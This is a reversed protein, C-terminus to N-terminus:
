EVSGLIQSELFVLHRGQLTAASLEQHDSDHDTGYRAEVDYVQCLHVGATQLICKISKRHGVFLCQENEMQLQKMVKLMMLKLNANCDHVWEHDVGIVGSLGQNVHAALFSDKLYLIHLIQTMEATRLRDSVVFTFEVNQQMVKFHQKLRMLKTELKAVDKDHLVSEADELLVDFLYVVCKIGVYLQEEDYLGEADSVSGSEVVDSHSKTSQNLPSMTSIPINDLSANRQKFLYTVGQENSPSHFEPSNNESDLNGLLGRKGHVDENYTPLSSLDINVDGYSQLTATRPRGTDADTSTMYGANPSMSTHRIMTGGTFTVHSLMTNTPQNYDREHQVSQASKQIKLNMNLRDRQRPSQEDDMATITDSLYGGAEKFPHEEQEACARREDEQSVEHITSPRHMTKGSKYRLSAAYQISSDDFQLDSIEPDFPRKQQKKTEVTEREDHAKEMSISINTQMQTSGNIGRNDSAAARHCCCCHFMYVCCRCRCCCHAYFMYGMSDKPINSYLHPISLWSYMIMAFIMRSAMFV